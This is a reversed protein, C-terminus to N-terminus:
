RATALRKSLTADTRTQIAAASHTGRVHRELMAAIREDQRRGADPVLKRRM